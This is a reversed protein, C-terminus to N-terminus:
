LALKRLTEAHADMMKETAERVRARRGGEVARIVLASGEVRVELPTDPGIRLQELERKDLILGLEDGIVSLTRIVIKERTGRTRDKSFSVAFPQEPAEDGWGSRLM